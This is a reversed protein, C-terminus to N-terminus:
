QGACPTIGSTIARPEIAHVPLVMPRVVSVGLTSKPGQNPGAM